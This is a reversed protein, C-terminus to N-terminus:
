VSPLEIHTCKGAMLAGDRGNSTFVLSQEWAGILSLIVGLRKDDLRAFSEDCILPPTCKLYLLEILAIRLSIYAADRTGASLAELPRMAGDAAANLELKDGVGLERYRGGTIHGLLKAASAALKPSVRQRLNGSAEALKESALKYAALKKELIGRERKLSGLRDDLKAPNEAGPYLGALTRELEGEHKELSAAMKQAFDRERRLGPLSAADVDSLDVTDDLKTRLDAESYGELQERMGALLAAYKDHEAKLANLAAMDTQLAELDAQLAAPDGAEALRAEIDRLSSATMERAMRLGARHERRKEMLDIDFSDGLKIRSRLLFFTVAAALMLLGGVLIPLGLGGKLLM